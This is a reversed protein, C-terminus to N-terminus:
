DRYERNERRAETVRVVESGPHGQSEKPAKRGVHDKKALFEM